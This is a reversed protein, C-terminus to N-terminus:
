LSVVSHALVPHFNTKDSSVQKQLFGNRIQEWHFATEEQGPLLDTTRVERSKDTQTPWPATGWSTHAEQERAELARWGARLTGSEGAPASRNPLSRMMLAKRRAPETAAKSNRAGAESARNGTVYSTESALRVGRRM